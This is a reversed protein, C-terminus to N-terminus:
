MLATKITKSKAHFTSFLYIFITWYVSNYSLWLVINSYGYKRNNPQVENTQRARQESVHIGEFVCERESEKERGTQRHRYMTSLINSHYARAQSSTLVHILRFRSHNAFVCARVVARHYLGNWTIRQIIFLNMAHQLRSYKEWSLYVLRKKRCKVNSQSVFGLKKVWKIREESRFSHSDSIGLWM